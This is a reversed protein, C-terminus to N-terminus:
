FLSSESLAAFINSFTTAFAGSAQPLQALVYFALLFLLLFFYILLHVNFFPM